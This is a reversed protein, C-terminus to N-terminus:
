HYDVLDVDVAENNEFRFVARWNGSVRISWLGALDGRLPHLRDWTACPRQPTESRGALNFGTEAEAGSRSATAEDSGTRCLRSSGQAQDADRLRGRYRAANCCQHRLDGCATLFSATCKRARGPQGLRSAGVRRQLRKASWPSRLGACLRSLLAMFDTLGEAHRREGGGLGVTAGM